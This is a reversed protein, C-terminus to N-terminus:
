PANGGQAADPDGTFPRLSDEAGRTLEEVQRRYHALTAHCQQLLEIGERYREIAPELGLGGQELEAVLAELRELRQDFGSGEACAGPAREDNTSM